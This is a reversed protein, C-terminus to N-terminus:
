RIYLKIYYDILIFILAIKKYANKNLKTLRQLKIYYKITNFGLYKYWTLAYIQEYYLSITVM